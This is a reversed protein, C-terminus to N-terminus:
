SVIWIRMSWSSWCWRRWDWQRPYYRSIIKSQKAPRALLLLAIAPAGLVIGNVASSLGIAKGYLPITPIVAGVGIFLILQLSLLLVIPQLVDNPVDAFTSSSQDELKLTCGSTRTSHTAPPAHERRPHLLPQRQHLLPSHPQQQHLLPQHPQVFSVSVLALASLM